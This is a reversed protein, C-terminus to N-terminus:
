ILQTMQIIEDYPSIATPAIGDGGEYRIIEEDTWEGTDKIPVFDSGVNLPVKVAYVPDAQSEPDSPVYPIAKDGTAPVILGKAEYDSGDSNFDIYKLIHFPKGSKVVANNKDILDLITSEGEAEEASIDEYRVNSAVLKYLYKTKTNFYLMPM